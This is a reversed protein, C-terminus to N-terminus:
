VEKRYLSLIPGGPLVRIKTGCAADLQEAANAQNLAVELYGRSGFIALLSKRPVASYADEVRDIKQGSIEVMMSLMRAEGVMEVVVQRHINSVLNGFHDVRVVEGRICNQARDVEVRPLDLRAIADPDLRRGLEGPPTGSALSAAVPAFIDRGHFTNSVPKLYLGPCDVAFCDIEGRPELLLSLIGNDPALFFQGGARLLIIQRNSGVWPDVVIIHVTGPPFYPVASHIVYAAQKMDQKDINHTLDVLVAGPFRSLIVGKMVGVYEDKLGFDTTLTIIAAM